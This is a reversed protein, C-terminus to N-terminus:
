KKYEDFGFIPQEFTIVDDESIQIEGFNKTFIKMIEEM